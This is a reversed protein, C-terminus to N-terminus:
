FVRFAQFVSCSWGWRTSSGASENRRSALSAGVRGTPTRWEADGQLFWCGTGSPHDLAATARVAKFRGQGELFLPLGLEVMRTIAERDFASGLPDGHTSFGALYTPQTFNAPAAHPAAGGYEIGLDWGEWVLQLGGLNRAPTLTMAQSDPAESRSLYASAGHAQAFRALAPIRVRLEALSETRASSGPAPHGLADQGGEMTIVGFNGEVLASFSARVLGGWLLPKQLDFGANRARIRAEHDPIWEPIPRDRELRGIFTDLRWRVLALTAEPTVLSLRPFSRTSDGLLEGGTLGSGWALPSQELAARWGSKTQYAIAARQLIGVTHAHERFVLTTATFSWGGQVVRGQLGLGWGQTGHGLGEGGVLPTYAGDSGAGGLGVEFSPMSSPGLPTQGLTWDLRAQRLATAGDQLMPAQSWVPSVAFLFLFLFLFRSLLSLTRFVSKKRSDTPFRKVASPASLASFLNLGNSGGIFVSSFSILVPLCQLLAPHNTGSARAADGPDSGAGGSAAGPPGTRPHTPAGRRERWGEADEANRKKNRLKELSGLVMWQIWAPVLTTALDNREGARLANRTKRLELNNV